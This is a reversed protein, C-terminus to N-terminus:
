QWSGLSISTASVIGLRAADDLQLLSCWVAQDAAQPHEADLRVRVSDRSPGSGRPGEGRATYVSVM